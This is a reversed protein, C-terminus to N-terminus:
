RGERRWSPAISLFADPTVAQAEAAAARRALRLERRRSSATSLCPDGDERAWIVAEMQSLDALCSDVQRLDNRPKQAPRRGGKLTGDQSVDAHFLSQRASGRGQRHLWACLPTLLTAERVMRTGDSGSPLRHVQGIRRIRSRHRYACWTYHLFRPAALQSARAITKRTGACLDCHLIKQLATTRTPGAPRDPGSTLPSTDRKRMRERDCHRLEHRTCNM